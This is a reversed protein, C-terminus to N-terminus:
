GVEIERSTVVLPAWMDYDEEERTNTSNTTAACQEDERCCPRRHIPTSLGDACLASRRWTRPTASCWAAVALAARQRGHSHKTEDWPRAGDFGHAELVDEHRARLGDAVVSRYEGIFGGSAVEDVKGTIFFKGCV